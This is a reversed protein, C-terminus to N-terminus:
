ESTRGLTRNLREAMEAKQAASYPRAIQIRVSKKPITYEAWDAGRRGQSVRSDSASLADLKKILKPEYTYVTAEKEANNYIIITEQELRSLDSM